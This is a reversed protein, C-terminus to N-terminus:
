KAPEATKRPYATADIRTTHMTGVYAWTWSETVAIDTLLRDGAQQRLQDFARRQRDNINIPFFLLLQFGSAEASVRQGKSAEIQSRDTVTAGSFNIPVGQCSALLGALALPLLRLCGVRKM